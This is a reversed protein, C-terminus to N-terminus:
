CCVYPGLADLQKFIEEARDLNPYEQFQPYEEIPQGMPLTNPESNFNESPTILNPLFDCNQGDTSPLNQFNQDSQQGDFIDAPDVSMEM